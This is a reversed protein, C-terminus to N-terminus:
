ASGRSATEREGACPRCSALAETPSRSMLSTGRRAMASPSRAPITTTARRHGRRRARGKPRASKMGMACISDACSTGEPAPPHIVGLAPDCQDLTCPNGDDPVVVAVHVVGLSPDCSDSTCANGDDIVPPQLVCARQADCTGSGLCPNAAACSTGAAVPSHFVGLGPACGDVTCSSGDDLIPEAGAVCAAAANCSEIGNCVNGDDCSFGVPRPENVVGFGRDCVDRTCPNGDDVVPPPGAVCEGASTCISTGNCVDGDDCSAGDQPLHLIGSAPDCADLTCRNGDDLDPPTGATCAGAGNCTEAGNCVNGDPCAAGAPSAEHSVGAVPDCADSTCPNGDDIAPVLGGQCVAGEACVAVGNCVNGDDCSTGPAVPAHQAGLVPDCSDTTCRNGDDISPPAGAVCIGATNCAEFGNCVNGDSCSTGEPRPVFTPGTAPDCTDTTCPNGDDVPLLEGPTCGVSGAICATVGNAACAGVSCTTPTAVFDEDATGNCDEDIGNCTADSPAPAGPVCSDLTQGQACSTMGTAVCSGIGCTTAVPAYSEDTAGDCDDDIGDCTADNASPAGPTCQNVVQGGVCSAEGEAACAGIGCSTVLITFDDDPVGDCDEDIGNCTTDQPASPTCGNSPPGSGCIGANVLIGNGDTWELLLSPPTASERSRLEIRGSQSEVGKKILWGHMPVHGALVCAVDRTLDFELTGEEGSSVLETDIPLDVYPLTATPGWMVWADEGSCDLAGNSLDADVACNWTAALEPWGRLMRHAGLVGDQGWNEYTRVIPLFLRARVLQGQLAASLVPADFGLLIRNRGAAQISLVEEAGFNHNPGGHRIYTDRQVAVSASGTIPDPPGSASGGEIELILRPAPTRERSAFQISGSQGEEVKRLLWGHGAWSGNAIAAVDATVDFTVVGTQNSTILATARPPSIWPRQAPDSADMDWATPGSCNAQQNSLDTDVACSWTAQYEASPQALRHLAILRGSGWNSATSFITLELRASILAGSGIAAAIAANDSFLLTRHNDSSQLSLVTDGGLNENAGGSRLTTDGAINISTASVLAARARGLEAGHAAPAESVRARQEQSAAKGDDGSDGRTCATVCGLLAVALLARETHIM